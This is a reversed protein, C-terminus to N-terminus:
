GFLENDFLDDMDTKDLGLIGDDRVTKVEMVQSPRYILAEVTADDAFEVPGNSYENRIIPRYLRIQSVREGYIKKTPKFDDLTYEGTSLALKQTPTLMSEDFPMEEQGNKQIMEWSSRTWGRTLPTLFQERIKVADNQKQISRDLRSINMVFTQPVLANPHDKDIYQPTLGNITLIGDRQYASKDISDRNFIIDGSLFLRTTNGEEAKYVNQITYRTYWQGNYYSLDVRGTVIVRDKLEPLAESLYQIQDYQSLFVKRDGTLNVIYSNMSSNVIDANQRESWPVEIRTGERTTIRLPDQKGAFAEVIVRDSGSKVTFKIKVWPQGSKASTGTEVLPKDKLTNWEGCFSFRM